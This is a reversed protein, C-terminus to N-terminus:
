NMKEGAIVAALDALGATGAASWVHYDAITAVNGYVSGLKGGDALGPLGMARLYENALFFATRKNGDMFPHGMIIGYSLTAALYSAPRSPEYISVNLPRVLASQLETPKVVVSQAPSVLQANIRRAYEPTFLRSLRACHISM